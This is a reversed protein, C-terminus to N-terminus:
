CKISLAEIIRDIGRKCIIYKMSFFWFLMLANTRGKPCKSQDRGEAASLWFWMLEKLHILMNFQAGGM